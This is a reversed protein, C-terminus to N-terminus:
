TKKPVLRPFCENFARISARSKIPTDGLSKAPIIPMNHDKPTRPSNSRQVSYCRMQTYYRTCTPTNRWAPACGTNGSPMSITTTITQFLTCDPENHVLPYILRLLHLITALSRPGLCNTPKEHPKATALLVLIM